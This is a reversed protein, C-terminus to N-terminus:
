GAAPALAHEELFAQRADTMWDPPAPPGPDEAPDVPLSSGYGRYDWIYVNYGLEHFFRVRPAYHEIGGKRGHNFVVTTKALSAEEGHSPLFWADLQYQGDETTFPVRKFDTEISRISSVTDLTIERWAYDRTWWPGPEYDECVDCFADWPDEIECTEQTVETCPINGHFPLLVDLTICGSLLLPSLLRIM